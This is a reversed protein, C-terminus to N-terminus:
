DSAGKLIEEAEMVLRQKNYIEEMNKTAYGQQKMSCFYSEMLLDNIQLRDM